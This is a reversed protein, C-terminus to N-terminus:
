IVSGRSTSWNCESMQLDALRRTTLSSVGLGSLVTNEFQTFKDIKRLKLMKLASLKGFGNRNKM